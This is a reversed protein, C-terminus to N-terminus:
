KITKKPINHAIKAYMKEFDFEKFTPSKENHCGQCDEEKSKILGVSAPDITGATIGEMVKKSKYESGPGHCAECGVGDEMKYKPGLRTAEVGFATVHCSLCEESKQPDAISREKAIAKAEESALAEYAQVHKSTQWIKYAAGSKKTMHCAKCSGSGLYKFVAKKDEQKKDEQAFVPLAIVFALVLVTFRKIGSM